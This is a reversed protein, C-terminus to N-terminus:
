QKTFQTIMVFYTGSSTRLYIEDCFMMLMHLELILLMEAATM